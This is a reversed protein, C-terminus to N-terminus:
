LCKWRCSVYMGRRGFSFVSSIGSFGSPKTMPGSSVTNTAAATLSAAAGLPGVRYVRGHSTGLYAIVQSDDQLVKASHVPAWSACTVMEGPELQAQRVPGRPFSHHHRAPLANQRESHSVTYESKAGGRDLERWVLRGNQLVVAVPLRPGCPALVAAAPFAQTVCAHGQRDVLELSRDAPLEIERGLEAPELQWTYLTNGVLSYTQLPIDDM